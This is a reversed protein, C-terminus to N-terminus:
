MNEVQRWLTSSSSALSLLPSWVRYLAARLYPLTGCSKHTQTREHSVFVSCRGEGEDERTEGGVKEASLGQARVRGSRRDFGLSYFLGYKICTSCVNVRMSWGMSWGLEGCVLLVCQFM